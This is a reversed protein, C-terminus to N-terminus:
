LSACTTEISHKTTSANINVASSKISAANLSSVICSVNCARIIWQMRFSSELECQLLLSLLPIVLWNAQLYLNLAHLMSFSFSGLFLLSLQSHSFFKLSVSLHSSSSIFAFCSLQCCKCLFSASSQEDLSSFTLLFVLFNECHADARNNGPCRRLRGCEWKLACRTTGPTCIDTM